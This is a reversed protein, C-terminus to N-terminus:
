WTLQKAYQMSVHCDGLIGAPPEVAEADCQKRRGCFCSLQEMM